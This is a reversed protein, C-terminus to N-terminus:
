RSRYRAAGRLAMPYPLPHPRRSRTTLRQPLPHHSICYQDSRVVELWRDMQPVMEDSLAVSDLEEGRGLSYGIDIIRGEQDQGSPQLLLPSPAEQPFRSSGITEGDEAEGGAPALELGEM